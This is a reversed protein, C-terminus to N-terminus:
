ERNRERRRAGRLGSLLTCVNRKRHKENNTVHLQDKFSDNPRNQVFSLELFQM